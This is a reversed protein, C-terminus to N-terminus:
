VASASAMRNRPRTMIARKLRVRPRRTKRAVFSTKPGRTGTKANNRKAKSGLRRALPAITVVSMTEREKEEGGDVAEIAEAVFAGDRTEREAGDCCGEAHNGFM